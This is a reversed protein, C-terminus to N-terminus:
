SPRTEWYPRWWVATLALAVLFHRLLFHRLVPRLEASSNDAAAGEDKIDQEYELSSVPVSINLDQLCYLIDIM